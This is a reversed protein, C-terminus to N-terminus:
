TPFSFVHNIVVYNQWLWDMHHIEKNENKFFTNV